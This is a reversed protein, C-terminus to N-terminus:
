IKNYKLQIVIFNCKCSLVPLKVSQDQAVVPCWGEQFLHLPSFMWWTNCSNCWYSAANWVVSVCSAPRTGDRAFHWWCHTAGTGIFWSASPMTGEWRWWPHSTTSAVSTWCRRHKTLTAWWVALLPWTGLSMLLVLWLTLAYLTAVHLYLLYFQVKGAHIESSRRQVALESM